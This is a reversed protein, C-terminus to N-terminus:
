VWQHSYNKQDFHTLHLTKEIIYSKADVSTFAKVSIEIECMHFTLSTFQNSYFNLPTIVVRYLTDQCKEREFKIVSHGGWFSTMGSPWLVWSLSNVKLHCRRWNESCHLNGGLSTTELPWLLWSNYKMFFFIM